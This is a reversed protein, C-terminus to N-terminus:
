LLRLGYGATGYLAALSDIVVYIPVPELLKSFRGKRLFAEEFISSKLESLIRPPIGGALYVGGTALLQLVLNGAEGGLIAIFLELTAKCIPEDHDKAGHFIIPTKDEANELAEALWEPEPYRGSEKFFDYLNPIGIGSCVREYSVHRMRSQLFTLLELELPTAPAYDTHGGESPLALYQSGDWVLYAEGLGTGPAIIAIPKKAEAKGPRLQVVDEDILHPIANAIAELDNILAVTSGLVLELSDADIVWPLNTVEVRRKRIPGAIGFCAAGIRGASLIASNNALFKQVIAELSPYNDSEFRTMVLPHHPGKEESFLALITKTGGIDGALLM